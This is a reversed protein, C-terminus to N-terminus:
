GPVTPGHTRQPAAPTTNLGSRTSARTKQRRQATPSGTERLPTKSASWETGAPIVLEGAICAETNEKCQDGQTFWIQKVPKTPAQQAPVGTVTIVKSAVINSM